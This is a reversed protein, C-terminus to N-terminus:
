LHFLRRRGNPLFLIGCGPSTENVARYLVPSNILCSQMQTYNLLARDAPAFNIIGSARYKVRNRDIIISANIGVSWKFLCSRAPLFIREGPRSSHVKATAIPLHFIEAILPSPDTFSVCCEARFRLPRIMPRRKLGRFCNLQREKFATFNTFPEWPERGHQLGGQMYVLHDSFLDVTLKERVREGLTFFINGDRLRTILSNLLNSRNHQWIKIDAIKM